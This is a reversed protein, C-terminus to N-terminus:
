FSTWLTIDFTKMNTALQLVGAVKDPNDYSRLSLFVAM